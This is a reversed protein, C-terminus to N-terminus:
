QGTVQRVPASFCVVRRGPRYGYVPDTVFCRPGIWERSTIHNTSPDRNVIERMSDAKVTTPDRVAQKVAAFLPEMLMDTRYDPPATSFGIKHLRHGAPLYRKCLKAVDVEFEEYSSDAKPRPCRVGWDTLADDARAQLDVLRDQDAQHRERRVKRAEARELAEIADNRREIESFNIRELKAAISNMLRSVRDMAEFERRRNSVSSM